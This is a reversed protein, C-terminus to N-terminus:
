VEIIFNISERWLDQIDKSLSYRRLNPGLFPIRASHRPWVHEVEEAWTRESATHLPTGDGCGLDPGTEQSPVFFSWMQNNVKMKQVAYASM